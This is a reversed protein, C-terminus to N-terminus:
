YIGMIRHIATSVFDNTENTDCSVCSINVRVLSYMCKKCQYKQCLDANKKLIIKMIKKSDEFIQHYDFYNVIFM